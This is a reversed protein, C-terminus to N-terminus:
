TAVDVNQYNCSYCYRLSSLDASFKLNFYDDEYNNIGYFGNRSKLRNGVEISSRLPELRNKLMERFKQNPETASYVKLAPLM